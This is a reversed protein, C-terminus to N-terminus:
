DWPEEALIAHSATRNADTEAAQEPHDVYGQVYREVDKRHQLDRLFAELAHRFGPAVSVEFEGQKGPHVQVTFGPSDALTELLDTVMALAEKRTRGQTMADLLPVEALWFRGDKYVRGNLRM